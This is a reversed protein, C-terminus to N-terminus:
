QRRLNAFLLVCGAAFCLSGFVIKQQASSTPGPELLADRPDDPDYFVRVTSGGPYRAVVARAEAPDSKFDSLDRAGLIFVSNASIRESVYERMGVRYRYRIQPYYYRRDPGVRQRKTGTGLQSLEISGKTTPWKESAHGLFFDSGGIATMCGGSIMLAACLYVWRPVAQRWVSGRGAAKWHRNLLMLGLIVGALILVVVWLGPTLLLEFAGKPNRKVADFLVSGVFLIFFFLFAILVAWAFRRFAREATQWISV